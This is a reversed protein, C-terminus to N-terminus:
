ATLMSPTALIHKTWIIISGETAAQATVRANAAAAQELSLGYKKSLLENLTQESSHSAKPDLEFAAGTYRSRIATSSHTWRRSLAGSASIAGPAFLM